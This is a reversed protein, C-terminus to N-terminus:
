VKYSGFVNLTSAQDLTIDREQEIDNVIKSSDPNFSGDEGSYLLITNYELKIFFASISFM